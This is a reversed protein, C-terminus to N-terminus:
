EATEGPLDNATIIQDDTIDVQPMGNTFHPTPPRMKQRPGYIKKETITNLLSYAIEVSGQHSGQHKDPLLCTIIEWEQYINRDWVVALGTSGATAKKGTAPLDITKSEVQHWQSTVTRLMKKSAFNCLEYEEKETVEAEIIPPPVPKPASLRKDETIPEIEPVEKAGMSFKIEKEYSDLLQGFKEMLQEKTSQPLQKQQQDGIM